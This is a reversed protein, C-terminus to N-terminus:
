AIGSFSNILQESTFEPYGAHDVEFLRWVKEPVVVSKILTRGLAHAKVYRHHGDVLLHKGQLEAFIIPKDRMVQATIRDLRHREIGRNTRFYDAIQGEVPFFCLEFKKPHAKVCAELRDVALHLVEGTDDDIHTFVVETWVDDVTLKRSGPTWPLPTSNAKM